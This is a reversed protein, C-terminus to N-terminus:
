CAHAFIGPDAPSPPRISIARPVSICPNSRHDSQQRVEAHQKESQDESCDASAQHSLHAASRKAAHGGDALHNVSRHTLGQHRLILRVAQRLRQHGLVSNFLAVQLRGNRREVRFWVSSRAGRRERRQRTSGVDVRCGARCSASCVNRGERRAGDMRRRAIEADCQRVFARPLAPSTTGNSGNNRATGAYASSNSWKGIRPSAPAPPPKRCCVTSSSTRSRTAGDASKACSCRATIPTASISAPRMPTAARSRTSSATSSFFISPAISPRRRSKSVRAGRCNISSRMPASLASSEALIALVQRRLPTLHLGERECASEVQVRWGAATPEPEPAPNQVPATKKRM